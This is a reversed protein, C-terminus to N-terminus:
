IGTPVGCLGCYVGPSCWNGCFARTDLLLSDCHDLMEGNRLRAPKWCSTRSRAIISGHIAGAMERIAGSWRSRGCAATVIMEQMLAGYAM